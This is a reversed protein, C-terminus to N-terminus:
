NLVTLMRFFSTMKINAHEENKPHLHGFVKLTQHGQGQERVAKLRLLRRLKLPPKM